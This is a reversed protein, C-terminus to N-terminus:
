ISQCKYFEPVYQNNRFISPHFQDTCAFKFVLIDIWEKKLPLYFSCSSKLRLIIFLNLRRSPPFKKHKIHQQHSKPKVELNQTQRIYHQPHFHFRRTPTHFHFSAPNKFIPHFPQLKTFPQGRKTSLTIYVRNFGLIAIYAM